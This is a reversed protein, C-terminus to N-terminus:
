THAQCTSDKRRHNKNSEEITFICYVISKQRRHSFYKFFIKRFRVIIRTSTYQRTWFNCYTIQMSLQNLYFSLYHSVLYLSVRFMFLTFLPCRKQQPTSLAKKTQIIFYQLVQDNLNLKTKLKCDRQFKECSVRKNTSIHVLCENKLSCRKISIHINIIGIIINVLFYYARSYSQLEQNSTLNIFLM